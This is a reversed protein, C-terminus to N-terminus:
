HGADLTSWRFVAMVYAGGTTDKNLSMLSVQKEVLTWWNFDTM